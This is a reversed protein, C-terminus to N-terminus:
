AGPTPPGSPASVDTHPNSNVGPPDALHWPDKFLSYFLQTLGIYALVIVAAKGGDFHDFQGTLWLDLFAFVASAVHAVIAMQAGRWRAPWFQLAVPLLFAALATAITAFDQQSIVAATGILVVIAYRGVRSM